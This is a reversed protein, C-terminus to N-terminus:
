RLLVIARKDVKVVLVVGLAKLDQGKGAVLKAGLLGLGKRLNQLKSTLKIVRILLELEERLAVDVPGLSVLDEGVQLM